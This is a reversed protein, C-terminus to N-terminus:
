KGGWAEWFAAWAAKLPVINKSAWGGVAGFFLVVGSWFSVCRLKVGHSVGERIEQAREIKEIRSRLDNEDRKVM